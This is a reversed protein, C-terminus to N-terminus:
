ILAHPWQYPIWISHSSHFRLKSNMEWLKIKLVAFSIRPFTFSTELFWCHEDPSSNAVLDRLFLLLLLLITWKLYLKLCRGQFIITNRKPFCSPHISIIYRDIYVGDPPPSHPCHTPIQRRLGDGWHSTQDLVNARPDPCKIKEVSFSPGLNLMTVHCRREQSKFTWNDRSILHSLNM